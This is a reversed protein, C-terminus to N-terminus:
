TVVTVSQGAGVAPDLAGDQFRDRIHSMLELLEAHKNINQTDTIYSM